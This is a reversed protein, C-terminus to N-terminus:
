ISADITSKFIYVVLVTLEELRHTM